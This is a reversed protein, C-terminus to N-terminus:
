ECDSEKIREPPEPPLEQWGIVDALATTFSAYRNFCWLMPYDDYNLCAYSTTGDALIVRIDINHPLRRDDVSIWDNVM